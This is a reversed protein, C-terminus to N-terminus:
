VRDEAGDVAEGQGEGVGGEDGEFGLGGGERFGGFGLTQNDLTDALVDEAGGEQRIPLAMATLLIRGASRPSRRWLWCGVRPEWNGRSCPSGRRWLPGKQFGIVGSVPDM